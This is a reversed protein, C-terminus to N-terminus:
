LSPRVLPLGFNLLLSLTNKQGAFIAWTIPTWNKIHDKANLDAKLWHLVALWENKGDRAALHAIGFGFDNYADPDLNLKEIANIFSNIDGKKYLFHVGFDELEYEEDMGIVGLPCLLILGLGLLLSFFKVTIIWVSLM